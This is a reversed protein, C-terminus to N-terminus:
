NEDGRDANNESKGYIKYLAIALICTGIAAQILFLISELQPSPEWLNNFWPEYEPNIENIKESGRDDSGVLELSRNIIIIATVVILIIVSIGIIHWLRRNM